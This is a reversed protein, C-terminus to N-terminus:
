NLKYHLEIKWYSLPIFINTCTCHRLNVEWATGTMFKNSSTGWWFSLIYWSFPLSPTLVHIIWGLLSNFYSGPDCHLSIGLHCHHVLYLSCGTWFSFLWTKLISMEFINIARTIFTNLSKYFQIFQSCKPM